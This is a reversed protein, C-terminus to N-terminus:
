SPLSSSWDICIVTTLSLKDHKRGSSYPSSQTSWAFISSENTSAAKRRFCRMNRSSSLGLRFLLFLLLSSAGAAIAGIVGIVGTEDGIACKEGSRNFPCSVGVETFPVLIRPM